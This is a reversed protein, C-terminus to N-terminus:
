TPSCVELLNVADQKRGLPVLANSLKKIVSRSEGGL